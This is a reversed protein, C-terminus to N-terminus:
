CNVMLAQDVAEMFFNAVVPEFEPLYHGPDLMANDVGYKKILVTPDVFSANETNECFEQVANKITIRASPISGDPLELLNHTVILLPKKNVLNHIVNLDDIIESESMVHLDCVRALKDAREGKKGLKADRVCWQQLEVGDLQNSKISCVELLVIDADEYYNERRLSSDYRKMDNIVLPILESSIETRATLHGIKQIADRTSHTYFDNGAHILNCESGDSLIKLPTYVRCSGIGAISVVKKSM